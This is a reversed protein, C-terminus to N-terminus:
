IGKCLGNMQEYQRRCPAKQATKNKQTEERGFMQLRSRDSLMRNECVVRGDPLTTPVFGYREYLDQRARYGSSMLTVSNQLVAVNVTLSEISKENTLKDIHRKLIKWCRKATEKEVNNTNHADDDVDREKIKGSEQEKEKEREHQIKEVANVLMQAAHISANPLNSLKKKSVTYAKTNSYETNGYMDVM